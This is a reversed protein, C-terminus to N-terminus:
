SLSHQIQVLKRLKDDHEHPNDAVRDGRGHEPVDEDKIGIRRPLWAASAGAKRALAGIDALGLLM